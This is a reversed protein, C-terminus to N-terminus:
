LAICGSSVGGLVIDRCFEVRVVFFTVGCKEWM